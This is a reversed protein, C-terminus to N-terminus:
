KAPPIGLRKVLIQRHSYAEVNNGREDNAQENNAAHLRAAQVDRFILRCDEM